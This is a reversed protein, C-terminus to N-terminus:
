LSSASCLLKNDPGQKDEDDRITIYGGSWQQYDVLSWRGMRGPLSISSESDIQDGFGRWREAGESKNRQLGNGWAGGILASSFYVKKSGLTVLCVPVVPPANYIYIYRLGWAKEKISIRTENNYVTLDRSTTGPRGVNPRADISETEEWRECLSRGSYLYKYLFSPRKERPRVQHRRGSGM